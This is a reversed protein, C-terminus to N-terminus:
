SKHFLARYQKKGHLALTNESAMWGDETKVAERKSVDIVTLPVILSQGNWVESKEM